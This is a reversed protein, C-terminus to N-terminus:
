RRRGTVLIQKAVDVLAPVEALRREIALRGVYDNELAKMLGERGLASAGVLLGYSRVDVFGADEFAVELTARGFLHLDASQGHQEWVGRGSEIREVALEPEARAILELALALASDVLIFLPAGPLLWGGIRAISARIDDSYQLSGMAFAGAYGAGSLEAEEVRCEHLTFPLGELRHVAHRAMEDAPEIGTVDYGMGILRESWRGVGAGIDVLRAPAPPLGASVIEWSLDDYARRHPVEFHADYDRALLNYLPVSSRM